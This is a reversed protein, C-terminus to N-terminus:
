LWGGGCCLWWLLGYDMKAVWGGGGRAVVMVWLRGWGDVVAWLLLRALGLHLLFGSRYGM